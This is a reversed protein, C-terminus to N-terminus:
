TGILSDGGSAFFDDHIGVRELGLVDAWITALLEEEPTRPAVYTGTVALPSQINQSRIRQEIRPVDHLETAIRSFLASPSQLAIEEQQPTNQSSVKEVPPRYTLETVLRVPLDFRWGQSVPQKFQSGISELFDLVIQNRPSPIYRIEISALRREAAIQGLHALMRHEVGRGLARCSLLFSDVLLTDTLSEFLIVGVLGYDGFRDRVEVVLSELPGAECVQRIEAQTRRITTANFQNTRQTLQSVRGIQSTTMTSIEIELELGALFDAFTPADQQWRDRQLNQQYYGTRQQDETTVKLQDFAWSHDLFRPIRGSDGPLQITTVAPCHAQVEACELPSDDVFIFSSLGLNLEEALSKLNESKPQWNIRWSVLHERKLPMDARQEFVAVVDAEQNKSCLCLLIGAQQRVVMFAQLARYPSDIEVGLPGDEACVGHWLTGDCDLVIVKYPDRKIAHVKRAIMTGMAIFFASTYPIHGIEEAHPDEIRPVPYRTIIDSAKIVHVGGIAELESALLDERHRHDPATPCICVIYTKRQVAPTLAQIFNQVNQEIEAERTANDTSKTWDEFRILVVNIGTANRSLLSSTELLQQFVQNYPAFEVKFPLELEQMWFDLSDQLPDATFTATVAITQETRRAPEAYALSKTDELLEVIGIRTDLFTVLRNDFLPAPKPESIVSAGKAIFREMTLFLDSVEYCVHYLSIGKRLLSEVRPGAVLEIHIDTNAEILCVSADQHQDFVLESVHTVDYLPV